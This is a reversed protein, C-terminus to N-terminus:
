LKAEENEIEKLKQLIDKLKKEKKNKVEENQKKFNELLTLKEKLNNEKLELIVEEKQKLNKIENKRVRIEEILISLIKTDTLIQLIEEKERQSLEMFHKANEINASLAVLQKFINESMKLIDEELYKQYERISTFPILNGNKYIEFKVPKLGRIIKINDDNVKLELEVLMEKNTFKNVLSNLKVKTFPKGYLGYNLAQIITSKGRGNKGVILSMGNQFEIEQFEDGYAGINKFRIKKFEIYM